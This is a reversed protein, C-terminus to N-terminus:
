LKVCVLALHTRKSHAPAPTVQFIGIDHVVTYPGGGSSVINLQHPWQLYLDGEMSKQTEM